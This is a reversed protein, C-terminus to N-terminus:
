LLNFYTCSTFNAPIEPASVKRQELERTTPFWQFYLKDCVRMLWHKNGALGAWIKQTASYSIVFIWTNKSRRYIIFVIFPNM